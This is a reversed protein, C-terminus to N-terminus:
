EVIELEANSVYILFQTADFKTYDPTEIEPMDLIFNGKESMYSYPLLPVGNVLRCGNEILVVGDIDIGYTMFGGADKIQIKYRYDEITVIIQQSPVKQLSISKV